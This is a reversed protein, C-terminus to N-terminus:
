LFPLQTQKAQVCSDCHDINAICGLSNIQQFKSNSTHGLRRHWIKFNMTIAMATAGKDINEMHYLGDRYRRMGILKM